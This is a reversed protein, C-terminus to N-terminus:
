RRVEQKEKRIARFALGVLLSVVAAPVATLLLAIETNRAWHGSQLRDVFLFLAVTTVVSALWAGAYSPMYRHWLVASAIVIVIYILLGLEAPM